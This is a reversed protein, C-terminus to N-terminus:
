FHLHVVRDEGDHIELALSRRILHDAMVHYSLTEGVLINHVRQWERLASMERFVHLVKTSGVVGPGETMYLVSGRAQSFPEGNDVAYRLIPTPRGTVAKVAQDQDAQIARIILELTEVGDETIGLMTGTMELVGRDYAHEETGESLLDAAATLIDVTKM